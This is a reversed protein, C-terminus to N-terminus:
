SEEEEFAQAYDNERYKTLMSSRVATAEFRAALDVSAYDGDENVWTRKGTRVFSRNRLGLFDSVKAENGGKLMYIRM